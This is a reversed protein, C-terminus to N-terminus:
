GEGRGAELGELRRPEAKSRIGEDKLRIGESSPLHAVGASPSANLLSGEDEGFVHQETTSRPIGGGTEGVAGAVAVRSRFGEEAGASLVGMEMLLETSRAEIAHFTQVANRIHRLAFILSTTSLSELECAADILEDTFACGLERLKDDVPEGKHFRTRFRPLADCMNGCACTPWRSSAVVLDDATEGLRDDVGGEMVAVIRAEMQELAHLWNFPKEGVSEAYTRLEHKKMMMGEAKM